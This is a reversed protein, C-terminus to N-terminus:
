KEESASLVDLLKQARSRRSATLELGTKSAPVPVPTESATATEATAILAGPTPVPAKDGAILPGPTPRMKLVGLKTAAKTETTSSETIKSSEVQEM